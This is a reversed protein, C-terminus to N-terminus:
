GAGRPFGCPAFGRPNAELLSIICPVDAPRAPRVRFRQVVQRSHEIVPKEDPPAPPSTSENTMM